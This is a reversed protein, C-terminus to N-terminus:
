NTPFPPDTSPSHGYKDEGRLLIPQWRQGVSNLEVQKVNPPIFRAVLGCRRRESGNSMSAHFVQGGHISIQGAKLELDVADSDDVFEGPIEQNISLLNGERASSEHAAIGKKHSGPIVRMCGNEIDSDDIAVWATHAVAPELGWYTVDQHWAVFHKPEREPYKCFFHTGLLLVGEPMIQEMLDLIRGDSAMRWIFEQHFHRGQLGVQCNEKGEAAELKDFEGRFGNIEDETFIDIGTVFGQTEYQETIDVAAPM